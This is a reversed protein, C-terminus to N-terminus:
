YNNGLYQCHSSIRATLKLLTLPIREDKERLGPIAAGAHRPQVKSILFTFHSELTKLSLTGDLSQKANVAM